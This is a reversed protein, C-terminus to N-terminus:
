KSFLYQKLMQTYRDTLDTDPQYDPLIHPLIQNALCFGAYHALKYAVTELYCYYDTISSLLDAEYESLQKSLIGDLEKAKQSETFANMYSELHIEEFDLDFIGVHQKNVYCNYNEFVGLWALFSLNINMRSEKAQLVDELLPAKSDALLNRLLHVDTEYAHREAKYNPDVTEMIRYVTEYLKKSTSSRALMQLQDKM